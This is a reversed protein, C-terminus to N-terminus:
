RLGKKTIPQPKSLAMTQSGPNNWGQAREGVDGVEVDQERLDPMGKRGHRTTSATTTQGATATFVTTTSGTTSQCLISHDILVVSDNSNSDDHVMNAHVPLPVM